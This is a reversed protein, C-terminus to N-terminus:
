SSVGVAGIIAEIRERSMSHSDNVYRREVEVAIRDVPFAMDVNSAGIAYQQIPRYGAVCLADFIPQEHSSIPGNPRQNASSQREGIRTSSLGHKRMIRRVNGHTQGYEAALTRTSILTNQYRAFIDAELVDDKAACAQWAAGLQRAIGEPTAKISQWKIREAESRGRSAIGNIRLVRTIADRCCGHEKALKNVSEGAQYRNLM